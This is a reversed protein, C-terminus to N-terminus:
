TIIYAVMITFLQSITINWAHALYLLRDRFKKGRGHVNTVVTDGTKCLLFSLSSFSVTVQQLNGSLYTSFSSGLCM